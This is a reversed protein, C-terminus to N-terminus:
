KLYVDLIPRILKECSPTTALIETNHALEQDYLLPEGYVNSCIGGAATLIANPGCTDWLKIQKTNTIYLDADGRAISALKLGVSSKSIYNKAKLKKTFNEAFQPSARHSLILNYNNEECVRESCDLKKTKYRPNNIESIEECLNELVNGRWLLNLRPQCVVGLVPKNQICIGLMISFDEQGLIYDKTGDIPDIFWTKQNSKKHEDFLSNLNKSEESVIIDQPFAQQLNATLLESIELDANTVPSNDSSKYSISLNKQHKLAIRGADIALQTALELEKTLNM